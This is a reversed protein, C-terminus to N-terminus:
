KITGGNMPQRLHSVIRSDAFLGAACAEVAPSNAEGHNIEARAAHPRQDGQPSSLMANIFDRRYDRKQKEGFSLNSERWHKQFVRYARMYTAHEAKRDTEPDVYSPCQRYAHDYARWGIERRKRRKNAANRNLRLRYACAPCYRTNAHGSRDSDLRGGALQCEPTLQGACLKVECSDGRNAPALANERNPNHNSKLQSRLNDSEM